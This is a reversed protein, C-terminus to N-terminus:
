NLFKKYEEKIKLNEIIKKLEEAPIILNDYENIVSQSDSIDVETTKWSKGRSFCDGMLRNLLIILYFINSSNRGM